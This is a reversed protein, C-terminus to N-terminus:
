QGHKMQLMPVGHSFSDCSCIFIQLYKFTEETRIDFKEATEHIQNVKIDNFEPESVLNVGRNDSDTDSSTTMKLKMNM